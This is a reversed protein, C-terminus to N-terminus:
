GIAIYQYTINQYDMAENGFDVSFDFFKVNQIANIRGSLEQGHLGAAFYVASYYTNGVYFGPSIIFLFKARFPLVITKTGTNTNSRTGVYSGSTIKAKEGALETLARFKENFNAMTPQENETFFPFAM